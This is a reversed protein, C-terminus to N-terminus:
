SSVTKFNDQVGNKPANHSKCISIPVSNKEPENPLAKPFEKGYDKQEYFTKKNKHILSQNILYSDDNKDGSEYVEKTNPNALRLDPLSKQNRQNEEKTKLVGYTSQTTTIKECILM